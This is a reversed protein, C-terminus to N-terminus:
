RPGVKLTTRVVDGLRDRVAELSPRMFPRPLIVVNRSKGARTTGFELAAGYAMGVGVRVGRETREIFVSGRLARTDPAPSEGPASARHLGTLVSKKKIQSLSMTGANLRKATLVREINLKRVSRKRRQLSKAETETLPGASDGAAARLKAYYRGTGPRGLRQVIEAKLAVGVVDVAGSRRGRVANAFNDLAADPANGSATTFSGTM